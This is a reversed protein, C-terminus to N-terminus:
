EFHVAEVAVSPIHEVEEFVQALKHLDSRHARIRHPTREAPSAERIPRQALGRYGVFAFPQFFRLEVLIPLPKHMLQELEGVPTAPLEDPLEGFFLQVLKDFPFAEDPFPTRRLFLLM